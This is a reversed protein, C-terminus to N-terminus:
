NEVQVLLEFVHLCFYDSLILDRKQIYIVVYMLCGANTCLCVSTESIKRFTGNDWASNHFIVYPWSLLTGGKLLRSLRYLMSLTIYSFISSCQAYRKLHTHHWQHYSPVNSFPSRRISGTLHALCNM